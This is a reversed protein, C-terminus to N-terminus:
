FRQLNKVMPHKTTLPATPQQQAEVEEELQCQQKELKDLDKTSLEEGIMQLLPDVDEEELEDLGVKRVLELCKLCEELFKETLDFGKFDVAFQPCLKKWDGCICSQMVEKWADQAHWIADHITFEALSAWVVTKQLEVESEAPAQAAKKLEGLSVDCKLSFACWTRQLYHTKFM